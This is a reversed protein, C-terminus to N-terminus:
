RRGPQRPWPIRVASPRPGPRRWETLEREYQEVARPDARRLYDLYVRYLARLPPALTPTLAGWGLRGPARIRHPLSEPFSYYFM